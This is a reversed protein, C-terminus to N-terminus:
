VLTELRAAAHQALVFAERLSPVDIPRGDRRAM